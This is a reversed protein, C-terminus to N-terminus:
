KEETLEYTIRTLGFDFSLLGGELTIAEATSPHLHSGGTFVLYRTTVREVARWESIRAPVPTDEYDLHSGGRKEFRIIRGGGARTILEMSKAKSVTSM